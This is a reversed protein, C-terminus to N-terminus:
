GLGKPTSNIFPDFRVKQVDLAELGDAGTAGRLWDDRGIWIPELAQEIEQTLLEGGENQVLERPM